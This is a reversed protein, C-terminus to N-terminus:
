AADRQRMPPPNTSPPADILERLERLFKEYESRPDRISRMARSLFRETRRKMQDSLGNMTANM